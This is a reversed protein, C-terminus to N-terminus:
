RTDENNNRFFVMKMSVYKGDSASVAVVDVTATATDSKAM